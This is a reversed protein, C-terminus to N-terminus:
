AYLLDKWYNSYLNDEKLLEEHYGNAKIKGNEM